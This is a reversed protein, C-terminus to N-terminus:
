LCNIYLKIYFDATTVFDDAGRTTVALFFRRRSNFTVGSIAASSLSSLSCTSKGSFVFCDTSAIQVTPSSNILDTRTPATALNDTFTGGPAAGTATPKYFKFDRTISQGADDVTEIGVVEFAPGPCAVTSITQLGGITDGSAYAATDVTPSILIERVQGEATTAALLLFLILKKM